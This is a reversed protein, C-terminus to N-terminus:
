QLSGKYDLAATFVRVTIGEKTLTTESFPHCDADNQIGGLIHFDEAEVEYGVVLTGDLWFEPFEVCKEGLVDNPTRGKLNELELDFRADMLPIEIKLDEWKDQNQNTMTGLIHLLVVDNEKVLEAERLEFM